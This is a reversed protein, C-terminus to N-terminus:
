FQKQNLVTKRAPYEAFSVPYEAPFRIDPGVRLANSVNILRTPNAATPTSRRSTHESTPRSPLSTEVCLVSFVTVRRPELCTNPKMFLFERCHTSPLRNGFPWFKKLLGHGKAVITVHYVAVVYFFHSFDSGGRGVIALNQGKM